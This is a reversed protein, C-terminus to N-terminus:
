AHACMFTYHGTNAGADVCVDGPRVLKRALWATGPRGFFYPEIGLPEAVNVWFRYGDLEAIRFARSHLVRTYGLAVAGLKLRRRVRPRRIGGPLLREAPGYALAVRAGLDALFLGLKRM